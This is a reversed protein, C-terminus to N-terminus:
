GSLQVLNKEVKELSELYSERKQRERQVVEQPAREVFGSNALKKDLQEVAASLRGAEKALRGPKPGTGWPKLSGLAAVNSLGPRGRSLGDAVPDFTNTYAQFYVLFKEARYRHRLHEVELDILGELPVFLETKGVVATGCAHPKGDPGIFDIRGVRALNNIFQAHTEIIRRVEEDAPIVALDAQRSPPVNMESRITRVATIVEQLLAMEREARPDILSADAEVWPRQFISDGQHPLRQWIEETIFPMFPHLLRLSSELVHWLM